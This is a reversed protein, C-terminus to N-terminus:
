PWRPPRGEFGYHDPLAALDAGAGEIVQEKRYPVQVDDGFLRAGGLPVFTYAHDSVDLAVRAWNPKEDGEGACIADIEGLEEGNSDVVSHGEYGFLDDDRTSM